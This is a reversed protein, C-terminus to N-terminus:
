TGEGGEATGEKNGSLSPNRFDTFRMPPKRGVPHTMAKKNRKRERKEVDRTGKQGGLIKPGSHCQGWGSGDMRGVETKTPVMAEKKL